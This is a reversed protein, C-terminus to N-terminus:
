YQKHEKIKSVTSIKSIIESLIEEYKEKTFKFPKTSETLLINNNDIGRVSDLWRISSLPNQHWSEKGYKHCSVCLTIANEPLWRTALISRPIIHSTDVKGGDWRCRKCTRNDRTLIYQSFLRDLKRKAKAINFKM